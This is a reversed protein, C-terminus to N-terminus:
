RESGDRTNDYCAWRGPYAKLRKLHWPQCGAAALVGPENVPVPSSEASPTVQHRMWSISATQLRWDRHDDGSRPDQYVPVM